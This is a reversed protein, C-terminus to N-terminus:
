KEVPRSAVAMSDVRGSDTYSIFEDVRELIEFGANRLEEEVLEPAIEHRRIQDARPDGRHDRAIPEIVVLRGGPRLGGRIHELMKEYHSMEHYANVILAADLEGKPLRPDDEAGLVAEVNGFPTVEARRELGEVLDKGIDVAYVRGAPVARALRVTFFGGGAGIDAVNSEESIRLAELVAGRGDRRGLDANPFRIM